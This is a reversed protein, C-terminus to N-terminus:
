HSHGANVGPPQGASAESEDRPAPAGGAGQEGADHHHGHMGCGGAGHAHSGHHGAHEQSGGPRNSRKLFEFM